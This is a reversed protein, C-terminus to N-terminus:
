TERMIYEYKPVGGKSEEEERGKGETVCERVREREGKRDRADTPCGVCIGGHM